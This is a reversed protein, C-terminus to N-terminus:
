KNIECNKPAGELSKLNKCNRCNFIKCNKPAGELTILNYCYSCNFEKCKEPAGKLSTLKKCNSCNFGNCEKPAGELTTLNNCNPCYFDGNVVRFQGIEDKISKIDENTIKCGGKIDITLDDNIIINNSKINTNDLVLQLISEKLADAGTNTNSYFGEKLYTNLAKM